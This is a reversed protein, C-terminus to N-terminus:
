HVLMRVSPTCVCVNLLVYMSDHMCKTQPHQEVVSQLLYRPSKMLSFINACWVAQGRFGSLDQQMHCCQISRQPLLHESESYLHGRWRINKGKGNDEKKEVM